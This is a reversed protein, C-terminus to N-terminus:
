GEINNEKTYGKFLTDNLLFRKGTAPYLIRESHGNRKAGGVGLCKKFPSNPDNM